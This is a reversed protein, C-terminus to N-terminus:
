KTVEVLAAMYPRPFELEIRGGSQRLEIGANAPYMLSARGKASTPVIIRSAGSLRWVALLTKGPQHLGVAVPSVPDALSPMGLPFFPISAPLQTRIKDRYLRIGERVRALAEPKLSALHGSQHIRCVMASVMNFAAEDGDAEMKPYSWAALQEPLVAALAGVLISPYKRYDTQDTSSQLQHRSLMAYDMRCGGSGCNEIVLNPHRQYVGDLWALYARNHELLGQGPSAANWETGQLGDVNYDMKIYGAGYQNVLRDVVEDAHARVAPNRFDLLYRSNDIVRRGHRQFFWDDPKNKLPSNIGAVELELWLGPTLGKSRIRELLAPLGEPFRTRSPMWLGVADWWSENREAYWGADIVFYDCGAAAAADILPYLKESTPDGILCNMYDNFIVPCQSNTPHAKLCATRRYQTLAAVAEDFGGQVCGLAVPVTQYVEGPKLEKWAQSHEEDPGGLYLYSGGNDLDSMEWHWAGNHEIQWFWTLGAARNEAMAMPLYRISSWTGLSNFFIGTLQFAGNEIWGL